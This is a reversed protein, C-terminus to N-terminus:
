CLEQNQNGQPPLNRLERRKLKLMSFKLENFYPSSRSTLMYKAMQAIKFNVSDKKHFIKLTLYKENKRFISIKNLRNKILPVM